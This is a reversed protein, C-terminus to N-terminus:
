KKAELLKLLDEFNKLEARRRSLLKSVNQLSKIEDKLYSIENKIIMIKEENTNRDQLSVWTYHKVQEKKDIITEVLAYKM